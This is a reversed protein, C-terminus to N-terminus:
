SPNPRIQKKIGSVPYGAQYDPAAPYGAWGLILQANTGKGLIPPIHENSSSKSFRNQLGAGTKIM